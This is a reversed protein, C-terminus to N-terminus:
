SAHATPEPPAPRSIILLPATTNIQQQRVFDEATTEEIVGNVIIAANNM